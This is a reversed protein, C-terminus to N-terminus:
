LFMWLRFYILDFLFFIVSLIASKAIVCVKEWYIRFPSFILEYKVCVPTRKEMVSAQKKRSKYFGKEAGDTILSVLFWFVQRKYM